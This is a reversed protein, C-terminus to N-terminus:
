DGRRMAVATGSVEAAAAMANTAAFLELGNNDPSDTPLASALSSALGMRELAKALWKLVSSPRALDLPSPDRISPGACSAYSLRAYGEFHIPAASCCAARAAASAM